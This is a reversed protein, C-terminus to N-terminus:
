RFRGGSDARRLARQPYDAFAAQRILPAAPNAHATLAPSGDLLASGEAQRTQWWPGQAVPDFGM